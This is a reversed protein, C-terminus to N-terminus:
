RPSAGGIAPRLRAMTAIELLVILGLQIGMGVFVAAPFHLSPPGPEFAGVPTLVSYFYRGQTASYVSGVVSLVIAAVYYLGVFLIGKLVPARMRTLRCWQIFAIDRTIYILVVAFELLGVKLARSEFGLANKWTFLGWLLLGYGVAASLALWPWQPGDEAFISWRTENHTRWWVRLKEPSTLMALGMAFLILGNIAIMYKAFSDWDTLSRPVFLAYLTFNLFAACGVAQWRSLPRMQEYDKTLTRLLMLVLWTGFAIYLLLSMVVWPVMSGFIAPKGLFEQKEFLPMFGALPSFAAIGPFNSDRAVSVFGFLLYIGFTGILGVGRSRSEFLNSLWMGALGIFLAGSIILLYGTAVNGLGAQGLLGALLAIPLCCLIIFYVLLPEGLLKGALLEGPSLGTARQFDWTKREREGSISQACSFLSWFTLIGLQAFMLIRYFDFWVVIPSQREMEALREATFHLHAAQNHMLAMESARSGWCGLWILVAIVVVVGAVTLARTSRLEARLHRVFEPNKWIPMM